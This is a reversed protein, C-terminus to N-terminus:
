TIDVFHNFLLKGLTLVSVNVPGKRPMVEVVGFLALPESPTTQVFNPVVHQPLM